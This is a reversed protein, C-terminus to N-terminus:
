PVAQQTEKHQWLYDFSSRIMRYGHSGSRFLIMPLRVPVEPALLNPSYFAIHPFIVATCYPAPLYRRMSIYPGITKSMNRVQALTSDADRETQPKDGPALNPEEIATRDWVAPSDPQEILARIHVESNANRLMAEIDRYFPGLPNFFVRLTPGMMLIEGSELNLFEESLRTQANDKGPAFERDRYVRIIGADSLESFLRWVEDGLWREKLRDYAFTVLIPFLIAAGLAELAVALVTPQASDASLSLWVGGVFLVFGAAAGIYLVRHQPAHSIM